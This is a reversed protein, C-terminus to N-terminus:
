QTEMVAVHLQKDETQVAGVAKMVLAVDRHKVGADAMILVDKINPNKALQEEVYAAAEAEKEVPTSGTLLAGPNVGKGKYIFAEADTGAITFVVADKDAVAEGHKAPPLNITAGPDMKSCVIFFILLLFTMDIMPTIDMESDDKVRSKPMAAEEEVAELAPEEPPAATQAPHSNSSSLPAM